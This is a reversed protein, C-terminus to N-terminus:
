TQPYEGDQESEESVSSQGKCFGEILGHSKLNNSEKKLQGLEELRV